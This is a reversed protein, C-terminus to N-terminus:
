FCFWWVEFSCSLVIVYTFFVVTYEHLSRLFNVLQGPNSIGCFTKFTGIIIIWNNALGILLVVDLSADQGDPKCDQFWRLFSAADYPFEAVSYTIM